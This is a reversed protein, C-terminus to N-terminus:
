QQPQCKELGGEQTMDAHQLVELGGGNMRATQDREKERANQGPAVGKRAMAILNIIGAWWLKDDL